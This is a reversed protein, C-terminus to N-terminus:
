NGRDHSSPPTAETGEDPPKLPSPGDGGEPAEAGEISPLVEVVEAEVEIPEVAGAARKLLRMTWVNAGVIAPGLASLLLTNGTVWIDRHGLRLWEYGLAVAAGIVLFGLVFILWKGSRQYGEVAGAEIRKRGPLMLVAVAGVIAALLTFLFRTSEGWIFAM